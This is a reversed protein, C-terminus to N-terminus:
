SVHRQSDGVYYASRHITPDSSTVKASMSAAMVLFKSCISSCHRGYPLLRWCPSLVSGFAVTEYVSLHSQSLSVKEYNSILLSDQPYCLCESNVPVILGFFYRIIQVLQTATSVLCPWVRSLQQRMKRRDLCFGM